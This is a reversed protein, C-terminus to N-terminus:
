WFWRSPGGNKAALRTLDAPRTELAPAAPGDGKGSTGHCVACLSEYDAQGTDVPQPACAVLAAVAVAGFTMLIRM